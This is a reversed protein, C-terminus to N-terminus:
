VSDDAIFRERNCAMLGNVAAVKLLFVVMTNEQTWADRQCEEKGKANFDAQVKQLRNIVACLPSRAM